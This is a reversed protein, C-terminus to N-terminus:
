NKTHCHPLTAFITFYHPLVCFIQWLAVSFTSCERTQCQTLTALIALDVSYERRGVQISRTKQNTKIVTRLILATLLESRM